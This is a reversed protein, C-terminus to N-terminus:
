SSPREESYDSPEGTRLAWLGCGVLTAGFALIFQGGRVTFSYFEVRNRLKAVYLARKDTDATLRFPPSETTGTSSDPESAARELLRGYEAAKYGGFTVNGFGLVLLLAGAGFLPRVIRVRKRPIM